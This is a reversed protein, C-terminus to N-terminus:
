SNLIAQMTVTAPDIVGMELLDGYTDTAANWDFGFEQEKCKELVISGDSGANFAIQVIPWTMARSSSTSPSSRTRAMWSAKVEAKKRLLWVLRSGGGPVIGDNMASKVSNLADEYRLKKDKLETETAAGVKIRGIAGGLKAIREESKERDFQRHAQKSRRAPPPM